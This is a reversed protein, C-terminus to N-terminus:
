LLPFKHKSIINENGNGYDNSFSGLITIRRRRRRRRRMMMVANNETTKMMKMMTTTTTTTMKMRRRMMMMAMTQKMKTKTEMGNSGRRIRMNNKVSVM